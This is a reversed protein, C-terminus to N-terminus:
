PEVPTDEQLGGTAGGLESRFEEITDNFARQESETMTLLSYSMYM